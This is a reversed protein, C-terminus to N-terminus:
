SCVWVHVITHHLHLTRVMGVQRFYKVQKKRTSLQVEGETVPSSYYKPSIVYLDSLEINPRKRQYFVLLLMNPLLM